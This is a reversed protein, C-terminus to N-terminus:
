AKIIKNSKIKETANRTDIILKSNEIIWKYDYASHDTVIVVCDYQKLNREILEISRMALNPYKRMGSFSSIHPDHYDVQAGKNKLINIIEVGPSERIDDTDKKYAVGLILIKSNKLCKGEQNLADIIKSIVYNPMNTNIEGALEIFHTRFDFEKAKWSLYFPDVPICNHLVLGYSTLFTNTNEVEISYVKEKTEIVEKKKIKVLAISGMKQFLKNSIIKKNNKFYNELKEKKKGLFLHKLKSLQFYGNINLLGARKKFYPIIGLDQMLLIVQHFLKPSITFYNVTASNCHHFYKKANKQYIKKGSIYDVGGDGRMLGAILNMKYEYPLHFIIGPIKMNYSNTGCELVDKLFSSFIESSIKIHITKWRKSKYISYKINLDELIKKLDSILEKEEHNFSFRVRLSKDKTICGESLYYGILRCLEPTLRIIAPIECLSPGRGTCLLLEERKFPVKGQKEIELYLKFPLFNGRYYDRYNYNKIVKRLFPRIFNDYDKLFLNKPRVRIKKSLESDILYDILDFSIKRRSPEPLNLIVPLFDGENVERALKLKFRNEYVIMPHLDTVKIKRGDKTTFQIIKGKYERETLFNIKQYCPKSSNPNFSLIEFNKPQLLNVGNISSSITHPHNKTKQYLDKITIAEFQNNSRIFVFESQALCHGGLGPGPYFPMFGFPKTKAAEIVEWIDIGMKDALIKLENVLAINVARFINELLKTFEAVEPSSVVVVKDVVQEYLTKGIETCQSTIGGIIKPINKTHYIPDGPNEREPSFVLFFDKGVKFGKKEFKPLLIERTTGPYTTSELSILQGKRLYKAIEESTNKVYTLDPEKKENLPTPVCIIICDVERLKSYDFTAEFKNKNILNKIKESPIHKIYSEAKNLKKVKNEDIDFGIVKFNEEGFRIVLPLGVYGLGIIGISVKRKKIREILQNKM